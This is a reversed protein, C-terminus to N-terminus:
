FRSPYPQLIPRHILPSPRHQRDDCRRRRLIPLPHRQPRPIDTSSPHRKLRVFPFRRLSALFRSFSDRFSLSYRVSPGIYGYCVGSRCSFFSTCSMGQMSNFRVLQIQCVWRMVGCVSSAYVRCGKRGRSCTTNSIGVRHNCSLWPM